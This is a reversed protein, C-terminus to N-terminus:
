MDEFENADSGDTATSPGAAREIAKASPKCSRKPRSTQARKLSVKQLVEEIDDNTQELEQVVDLAEGYDDSIVRFM